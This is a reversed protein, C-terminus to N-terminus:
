SKDRLILRGNSQDLRWNFGDLFNLGLLGDIGKESQNGFDIVAVPVNTREADGVRISEVNAVWAEIQGNATTMPLKPLHPSPTLGLDFALESSLTTMTAGSDIILKADYLDNLEVRTSWVGSWDLQVVQEEEIATWTPEDGSVLTSLAANMKQPDFDKFFDWSFQKLLFHQGLIFVMFLIGWKVLPKTM